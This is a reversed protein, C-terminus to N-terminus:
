LHLEEEEVVKIFSEVERDLRVYKSEALPDDYAGSPVSRRAGQVAVVARLYGKAIQWNVDAALQLPDFKDM